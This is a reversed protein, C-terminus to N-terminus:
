KSKNSTQNDPDAKSHKPKYGDIVRLTATSRRREMKKGPLSKAKAETRASKKINPTGTKRRPGFKYLAVIVGIVLLPVILSTPNQTITSVIGIGVFTFLVFLLWRPIKTM